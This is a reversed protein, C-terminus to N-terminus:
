GQAQAVARELVSLAREIPFPKQLLAIRVSVDFHRLARTDGSMVVVPIAHAHRRAVRIFEEATLHPLTYDVLLVDPSRAQLEALASLPSTFSLVLWGAAELEERLVDCLSPDDEVVFVTRDAM